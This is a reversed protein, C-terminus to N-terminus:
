SRLGRARSEPLGKRLRLEHYAVAACCGTFGKLVGGVLSEVGVWVPPPVGPSARELQVLGGAFLLTIAALLALAALLELRHGSTLSVSRRLAGETGLGPEAVIAPIALYGAVFVILGPIVFAFIGLVIMVSYVAVVMFIPWLQRATSALLSGTSPAEGGLSQLVGLSLAASAVQTLLWAFLLLGMGAATGEVVVGARLQLVAVPLQLGISVASFVFVHRLWVRVTGAILGWPTFRALDPPPTSAAPEM